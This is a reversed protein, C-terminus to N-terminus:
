IHQDIRVCVKRIEPLLSRYRTSEVACFPAFVTKTTVAAFLM